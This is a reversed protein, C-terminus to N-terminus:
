DKVVRVRQSAYNTAPATTEETAAVMLLEIETGVVADSVVPLWVIIQREAGEEIEVTDPEIRKLIDAGATATIKYRAQPGFNRVTFTLPTEKGATVTEVSGAVVELPEAHLLQRSVLQYSTAGDDSGTVAVRFPVAPLEIPGVFERGSDGRRLEVRQLPRGGTSILVFEPPKASTASLGVRLTAPRGVLPYGQIRSWGEHGPRGDLRVFEASVERDTRGYVVLWFKDTPQLMVQWAGAAPADVSLIRGCNLVTDEPLVNPQITAGDPSVITTGGGKGNFMASFTVRTIGADVPISFGGAADAETGGAWLLMPARSSEVMINTMLPIESTSTPFPQGGTSTALRIYAPDIPGCVGPGFRIGPANGQGIAALAAVIAALIRM